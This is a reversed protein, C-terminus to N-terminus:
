RLHTGMALSRERQGATPECGSAVDRDFGRKNLPGGVM